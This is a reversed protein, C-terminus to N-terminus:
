VDEALHILNYINHSVYEKGYINQFGLVFHQLLNNAYYIYDNSKVLDPNILISIAVHLFLFITYMEDSLYKKLV